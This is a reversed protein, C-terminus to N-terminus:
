ARPWNNIYKSINSLVKGERRNRQLRVLCSKCIMRGAYYDKVEKERKCEICTRM